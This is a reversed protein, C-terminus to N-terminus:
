QIKRVSFVFYLNKIKESNFKELPFSLIFNKNYSQFSIKISRDFSVNITLVILTHM